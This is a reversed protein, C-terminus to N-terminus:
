AADDLASQLVSNPKKLWRSILELLAVAQTETLAKPTLHVIDDGYDAVIAYSVRAKQEAESKKSKYNSTTKSAVIGRTTVTEYQFSSDPIAIDPRSLFEREYTKKRGRKAVRIDDTTLHLTSYSTGRRRETEDVFVAIALILVLQCAWFAWFAGSTDTYQSAPYWGGFFALFFLVYLPASALTLGTYQPRFHVLVGENTPEIEYPTKRSRGM